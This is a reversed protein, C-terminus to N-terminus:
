TSRAAGSGGDERRSPNSILQDGLVELGGAKLRLWAKGRWVTLTQGEVPEELGQRGWWANWSEPTM